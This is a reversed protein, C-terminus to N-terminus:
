IFACASYLSLFTKKHIVHAIILFASSSLFSIVIFRFFLGLSIGLSAAFGKNSSEETVWYSVAVKFLVAVYICYLAIVIHKKKM